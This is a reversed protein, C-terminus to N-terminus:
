GEQKAATVVNHVATAVPAPAPKRTTRETKDQIGFEKWSEKPMEIKVTKKAEMYMKELDSLGSNVDATKQKLKAKLSEQEDDLGKVTEVAAAFKSVFDAGLGRKTMRDANAKMGSLMVKVDNVIEAFSGKAM